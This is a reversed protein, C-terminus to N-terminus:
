INHGKTSLTTPNPARQARAYHSLDGGLHALVGVTVHLVGAVPAERGFGTM